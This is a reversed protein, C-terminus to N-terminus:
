CVARRRGWAGGRGRERENGGNVGWPADAMTMEDIVECRRVQSGVCEYERSM